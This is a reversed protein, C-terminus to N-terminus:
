CSENTEKKDDDPEVYGREMLQMLLNMFDRRVINHSQRYEVNERFVNMFYSTVNRDFAPISFFDM